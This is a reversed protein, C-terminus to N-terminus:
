NKGNGTAKKKLNTEADSERIYLPMLEYSKINRGKEFIGNIVALDIEDILKIKCNKQVNEVLNNDDKMLVGIAKENQLSSIYKDLKMINYSFGKNKIYKTTYVEGRKADLAPMITDAENKTMEAMVDLTSIGAVSKGTAYSFAKIISIGIRIGTFSGPGSTAIFLDFDSIKLKAKKLSEKILDFIVKNYTSDFSFYNKFLTTGNEFFGIGIKKGTTDIIFRKM